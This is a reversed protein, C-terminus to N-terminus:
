SSGDAQQRASNLWRRVLGDETVGAWLMARLPKFAPRDCVREEVAQMVEEHPIEEYCDAIDTDM